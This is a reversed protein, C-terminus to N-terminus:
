AKAELMDDFGTYEFINRIEDAVNVLKMTGGQQTMLRQLMLFARLGASFVYEVNKMDFILKKVEALEIKSILDPSTNPDLWGSLKCVLIDGDKKQEILLQKEEEMSFREIFSDNISLSYFLFILIEM